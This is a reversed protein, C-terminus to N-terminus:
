QGAAGRAQIEADPLKTFMHQAIAHNDTVETRNANWAQGPAYPPRFPHSLQYGKRPVATHEVHLAPSGGTVVAVLPASCSRRALM